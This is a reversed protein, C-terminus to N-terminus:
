CLSANVCRRQRLAYPRCRDQPAGSCVVNKAPYRRFRERPTDPGASDDLTGVLDFIQNLTMSM